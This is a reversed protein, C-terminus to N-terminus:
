RYIEQREKEEKGPYRMKSEVEMKFTDNRQPPLKM